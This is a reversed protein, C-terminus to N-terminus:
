DCPRGGLGVAVPVGYRTLGDVIEAQAAPDDLNAACLISLARGYGAQASARAPTSRAELAAHLIARPGAELLSAAGPTSLTHALEDNIRAQALAARLRHPDPVNPDQVMELLRTSAHAVVREGEGVRDFPLSPDRLSQEVLGIGEQARAELLALEPAGSPGEAACAALVLLLAARRM